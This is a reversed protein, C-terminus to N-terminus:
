SSGPICGSVKYIGRMNSAAGKLLNGKVSTAGPNAGGERGGGVGVVGGGGGGRGGPGVTGPTQLICKTSCLQCNLTPTIKYASSTGQDSLARNIHGHNDGM